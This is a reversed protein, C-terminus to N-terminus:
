YCSETKLADGSSQALWGSVTSGSIISDFNTSSDLVQIHIIGGTFIVAVKMTGDTPRAFWSPSSGGNVNGYLTAEAKSKDGDLIEIVDLEGCGSHCSPSYQGQLDIQTNLFWFAPMDANQVSGDAKGSRPM